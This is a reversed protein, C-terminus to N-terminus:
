AKSGCDGIIICRAMRVRIRLDLLRRERILRSSRVFFSSLFNLTSPALSRNVAYLRCHLKSVAPGTAVYDCNESRGILFLRSLQVILVANFYDIEINFSKEALEVSKGQKKRSDITELRGVEGKVRPVIISAPKVPKIFKKFNSKLVPVAAGEILIRKRAMDHRQLPFTFLVSRFRPLQLFAVSYNRLNRLNNEM